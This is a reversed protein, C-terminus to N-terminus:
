MIRLLTGPFLGLSLIGFVCLILALSVPLSWGVKPLEEEEKQMFMIVLVRLYYYVSLASNLVAIVVLYLYGADLAARFLYFKGFFGATPPIGALSLMFVAMVVALFPNQTGAGQLDDLQYEGKGRSNILYAVTFAGVNMLTYAFLYFMIAKQSVEVAETSVATVAMFGVLLYGAHAISSYALMRKLNRQAIALVNGVTMTLVAVLWIANNVNLGLHPFIDLFVRLLAAFAAAKAATSMYASVPTPAGDYVDPSWFHFPFLAAKFAFAFFVLASGVIFTVSGTDAFKLLSDIKTGSGSAYMLMIGYLLFGSFFAGILFYKMAAENSKPRERQLGALVYLSISLVELGLFLVLLDKTAAMIGAGCTAFIILSYFEGLNTNSRTLYQDATLIVLIAATVFITYFFITFSDGYFMACSQPNQWLTNLTIFLSVGLFLIALPQNISKKEKPIFLDILLLLLGSGALLIHPLLVKIPFDAM